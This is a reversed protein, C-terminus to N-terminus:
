HGAPPDEIPESGGWRVWLRALESALSRCQAASRLTAIIRGSPYYVLTFFGSYRDAGADTGRYYAFPHSVSGSVPAMEGSALRVSFVARRWGMPVLKGARAVAELYRDAAEALWTGVEMHGVGDAAQKWRISQKETARVTFAVTKM